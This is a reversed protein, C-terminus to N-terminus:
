AICLEWEVESEISEIRTAFDIVRDDEMGFTTIMDDLDEKMCEIARSITM